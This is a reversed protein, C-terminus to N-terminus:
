FYRKPKTHDWYLDSHNNILLNSKSDLFNPDSPSILSLGIEQILKPIGRIECKKEYFHSVSYIM